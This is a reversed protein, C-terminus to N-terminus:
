IPEPEPFSWSGDLIAPRPRYMRPAYNWGDMVYLFNDSGDPEPGFTVTISGDDNATSTVSNVSYSDYENEQFYGDKNCISVSWFGDLPPDKVTPRYRGV